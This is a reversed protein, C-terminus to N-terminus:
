SGWSLTTPTIDVFPHKGSLLCDKAEDLSLFEAGDDGSWILDKQYSWDPNKRPDCGSAYAILGSKAPSMSRKENGIIYIGRDGVLLIGPERMREKGDLATAFPNRHETGSEVAALIKSIKSRNFYLRTSNM